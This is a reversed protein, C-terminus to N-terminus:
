ITDSSFSTLAKMYNGREFVGQDPGKTQSMSGKLQEVSVYENEEMWETLGKLVNSIHGYGKKYLMAAVMGVDAGALLAKTLGKPGHIGTSLALSADVRGKLIAIWRMPLLMEHKTSLVLNPQMELEDLDIDPQMFRNFLVLGTAGASVFQKAVNCPSSYSPGLKVSLPIKISDAVSNVLEVQEKEIDAGSVDPNTAIAYINLEIADAGADEFLKAYRTWGGPSAGNLSAIVPIDVAKKAAAVTELYQDPGSASNAQDPFYSLSEPSSDTGFDQAEGISVDEHVIQEEFLSPLVVAAAGAEELEKIPDVSRTISCSAVMLPNKLTLGLYQTSLDISM